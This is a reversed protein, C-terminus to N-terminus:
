LWVLFADGLTQVTKKLKITGLKYQDMTGDFMSLIMPDCSSGLLTPVVPPCGTWVELERKVTRLHLAKKRHEWTYSFPM